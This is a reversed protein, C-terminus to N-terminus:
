LILLEKEKKKQNVRRNIWKMAHFKDMIYKLDVYKLEKWSVPRGVPLYSSFRNM